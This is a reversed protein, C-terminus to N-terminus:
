MVPCTNWIAGGPGILTKVWGFFLLEKLDVGWYTRDPNAHLNIWLSARLPYKMWVM